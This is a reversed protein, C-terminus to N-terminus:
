QEQLSKRAVIRAEHHDGFWGEEYRLVALGGVLDPLEGEDLVFEKPPRPHRELNRVTAIACALLGGVVLSGVMEPFLDRQLYHSCLIMDWQGSPLGESRLDSHICTLPVGLDDAAAQALGLARDSMDVVTTDLGRAAIWLANRGNGGAVDLARGSSPVLDAISRMFATPEQSWGEVYRQNWYEQPDPRAKM